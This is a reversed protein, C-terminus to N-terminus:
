TPTPRGAGCTARWRRAARAGRRRRRRPRGARRACGRGGHAGWCPRRRCPVPRAACHRSRSACSGHTPQVANVSVGQQHHATVPAVYAQSQSGVDILVLPSQDPCSLGLLCDSARLVRVAARSDYQFNLLHNAPIFGRQQPSRGLPASGDAARALEAGGFNLAQAAAEAGGGGSGAAARRADPAAHV